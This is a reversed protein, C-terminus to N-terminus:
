IELNCMKNSLNANNANKYHPSNTSFELPWQPILFWKVCDELIQSRIFIWVAMSDDCVSKKSFKVLPSGQKHSFMFFLFSFLIIFGFLCPISLLKHNEFRINWLQMFTTRCHWQHLMVHLVRVDYSYKKWKYEEQSYQFPGWCWLM